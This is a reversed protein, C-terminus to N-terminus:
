ELATEVSVALSAIEGEWLLEWIDASPALKTEAPAVGRDTGAASLELGDITLLEAM